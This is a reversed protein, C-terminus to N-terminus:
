VPLGRAYLAFYYGNPEYYAYYALRYRRISLMMALLDKFATCGIAAAIIHPVSIASPLNGVHLAADHM